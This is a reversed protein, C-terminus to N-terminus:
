HEEDWTGPVGGLMQTKEDVFPRTVDCEGNRERGAVSARSMRRESADVQRSGLKEVVTNCLFQTFPLVM